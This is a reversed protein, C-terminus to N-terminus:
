FKDCAAVCSLMLEPHLFDFECQGNGGTRPRRLTRM